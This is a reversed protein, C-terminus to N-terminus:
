GQLRLPTRLNFDCLKPSLTELSPDSMPRHPYTPGFRSTGSSVVSKCARVRISFSLGGLILGAVLIRASGLSYRSGLLIYFSPGLGLIIARVAMTKCVPDLYDQVQFCTRPAIHM